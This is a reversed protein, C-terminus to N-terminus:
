SIWFSQWFKLFEFRSNLKQQDRRAKNEPKSFNWPWSKDMNNMDYHLIDRLAKKYLITYIKKVAILVKKEVWHDVM